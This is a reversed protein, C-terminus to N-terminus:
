PPTIRSGPASGADASKQLFALVAQNFAEPQEMNPLHASDPLIIKQASPLKEEMYDAARLVEPHDLAGAVILVPAHISALREAAPPHLPNVSELEAIIFTKNEVAIRSMEAARQRVSTDVENPQRFPGDIWLRLQLETARQVDNQVLASMMELMAPPPEGQMEFGLPMTSVPVLAAVMEPHELAFDLIVEGGVSCGVLV